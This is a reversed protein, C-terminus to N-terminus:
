RRQFFSPHQLSIAGKGPKIQNAIIKHLPLVNNVPWRLYFIGMSSRFGHLVRCFNIIM